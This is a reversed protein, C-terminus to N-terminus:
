FYITRACLRQPEMYLKFNLINGASQRWAMTVV